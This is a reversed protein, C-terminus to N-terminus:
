FNLFKNFKSTAPVLFLFSIFAIYIPSMKTVDKIQDLILIELCIKDTKADM